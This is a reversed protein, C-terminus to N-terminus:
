AVPLYRPTSYRYINATFSQGMIPVGVNDGDTVEDCGVDDDCNRRKFQIPVQVPNMGDTRTYYNWKNRGSDVARGFLPLITRTPTGSNDTGGPTTLVGVQQYADPVGRSLRNVPLAGIGAPLARSPYGRLDPPMGYSREPSLPSFRPDDNIVIPPMGASAVPKEVVVVTPKTLTSLEKMLGTQKAIFIGIAIIALVVLLTTLISGIESGIGGGVHTGHSGGVLRFRRAPM